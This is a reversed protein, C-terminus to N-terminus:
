TRQQPPRNCAAPGAPALARLPIRRVVLKKCAAPDAGPHSDGFTWGARDGPASALAQHDSQLDGWGTAGGCPVDALSEDAGGECTSSFYRALSRETQPTFEVVPLMCATGVGMGAAFWLARYLM